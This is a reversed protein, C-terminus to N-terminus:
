HCRLHITQYPIRRSHTNNIHMHKKKLCFVAYSIRMLSQLESTHEESRFVGIKALSPVDPIQCTYFLAPLGACRTLRAVFGCKVCFSLGTTKVAPSGQPGIVYLAQVENGAGDKSRCSLM